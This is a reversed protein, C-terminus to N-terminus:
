VRRFLFESEPDKTISLGSHRDVTCPAQGRHTGTEERNHATSLGTVVVSNEEEAEKGLEKEERIQNSKRRGDDGTLFLAIKCCVASSKSKLSKAFYM